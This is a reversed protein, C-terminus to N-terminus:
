CLVSQANPNMDGLLHGPGLSSTEQSSILHTAMGKELPDGWGLSQVSAEPMAALKKVMQAVLSAWPTYNETIKIISECLSICKGAPM